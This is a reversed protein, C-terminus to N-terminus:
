HFYCSTGNIALSPLIVELVASVLAPQLDSIDSIYIPFDYSYDTGQAMGNKITATVWVVGAARTTLVDVKLTARTTDPDKISWVIDTYSADSPNAYGDLIIEGVEATDSFGPTISTVAVFPIISIYFNKTYPVGEAIGNAVTAMVIVLGEKTTTLNSGSITGETDGGPQVSWKITKNTANSPVVKGGLSVTGVPVEANVGIINTVPIFDDATGGTTGNNEPAENECSMMSFGILTALAIIGILKM